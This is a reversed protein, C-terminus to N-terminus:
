QPKGGKRKRDMWIILQCHNMKNENLLKLLCSTIQSQYCNTQPLTILLPTNSLFTWIRKEKHFLNCTSINTLHDFFFKMFEKQRFFNCNVAIFCSFCLDNYNVFDHHGDSHYLSLNCFNAYLFTTCGHGDCFFIKSIKM